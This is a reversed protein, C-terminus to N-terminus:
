IGRPQQRSPRLIQAPDSNVRIRKRITNISLGLKQAWDLAHLTEGNLTINKAYKRNRSQEVSTAWRCNGPEYHGDSDRRDVSHKRSPREGMDALFNAFTDWRECVRIGRAGYRKYESHNKSNCRDRMGLWSTYTLTHAGKRCHGHQVKGGRM